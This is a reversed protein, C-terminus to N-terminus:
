FKYIFCIIFFHKSINSIVVINLIYFIYDTMTRRCRATSAIKYCLSVSRVHHCFWFHWYLIQYIYISATFLCQSSYFYFLFLLMFILWYVLDCILLYFSHTYWQQQMFIHHHLSSFFFLLLSLCFIFIYIM